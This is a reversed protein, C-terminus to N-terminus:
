PTSPQRSPGLGTPLEVFPAKLQDVSKTVQNVRDVNAQLAQRLNKLDVTAADLRASVAKTQSAQATQAQELRDLRKMYGDNRKQMSDMADRLQAVSQALEELKASFRSDPQQLAALERKLSTQVESWHADQAEFKDNLARESADLATNISEIASRVDTALYTKLAQTDADLKEQLTRQQRILTEQMTREAGTARKREEELQADGQELITKFQVLSEQFEVFKDRVNELVQNMNASLAVLQAEMDADQQKLDKARAAIRQELDGVKLNFEQNLRRSETELTNQFRPLHEERLNRLESKIRARSEILDSIAGELKTEVRVLDAQQAVCSTVSLAVCLLFLGRFPHRAGRGGNTDDQATVSSDHERHM